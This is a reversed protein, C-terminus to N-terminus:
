PNISLHRNEPVHPLKPFPFNNIYPSTKELHRLQKPIPHPMSTDSPSDM